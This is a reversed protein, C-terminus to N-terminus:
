HRERVLKGHRFHIFPGPDEFVTQKKIRTEVEDLVVRTIHPLNLKRADSITVWCIHSLEDSKVGSLSQQLIFSDAFMMFFRADYRRNRYPPTIARAIYQLQHVSPNVGWDLFKKWIPSHTGWVSRERTGIVLGTEEFTERIAAIALARARSESCGKRLRALVEPQLGLPVKVRSDSRDVVGGPFVFKNPMFKHKSSRKGMLLRPEVGDTRVLILTSSDRPRVARGSTRVESRTIYESDKEAGSYPVNSNKNM